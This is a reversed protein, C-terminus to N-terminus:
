CATGNPAWDPREAAPAISGRGQRDMSCQLGGADHWGAKVAPSDGGALGGVVASVAGL